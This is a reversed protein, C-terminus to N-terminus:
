AVSRSTRCYVMMGGKSLRQRLSSVRQRFPEGDMRASTASGLTPDNRWAATREGVQEVAFCPVLWTGSVRGKAWKGGLVVAHWPEIQEALPEAQSGVILVPMFTQFPGSREDRGPQECMLTFSTQPKGAETWSVKAGYPSVSGSLIVRNLSMVAERM